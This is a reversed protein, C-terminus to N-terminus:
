VDTNPVAWVGAATLAMIILSVITETQPSVDFGTFESIGLIVLGILAVLFKRYKSM